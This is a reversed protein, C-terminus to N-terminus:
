LGCHQAKTMAIELFKEDESRQKLMSPIKSYQPLGDHIRSLRCGNADSCQFVFKAAGATGPKISNSITNPILIAHMTSMERLSYLTRGGQSTTRLVEYSGVDLTVGQAAFPLCIKTKAIMKPQAFVAAVSAVMMVSMQVLKKTTM